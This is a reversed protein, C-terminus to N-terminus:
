RAEEQADALAIWTNVILITEQITAKSRGSEVFAYRHAQIAARHAFETSSLGFALRTAKLSGTVTKQTEIAEFLVAVAQAMATHDITVHHTAFM